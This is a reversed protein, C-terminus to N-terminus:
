MPPLWPSFAPNGVNEVIPLGSPMALPSSPASCPGPRSLPTRVLLPAVPLVPVPRPQLVHDVLHADRPEPVLHLGSARLELHGLLLEVVAPPVEMLSPIPLLRIALPCVPRVDLRPPYDVSACVPVQHRHHLAERLAERLTSSKTVGFWSRRKPPKSSDSFPLNMASIFVKPYPFLFPLGKVVSLSSEPAQTPCPCTCASRCRSQSTRARGAPRGRRLLPPVHVLGDPDCSALRCHKLGAVM